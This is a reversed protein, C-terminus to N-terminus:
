KKQLGGGVSSSFSTGVDVRALARHDQMLRKLTRFLLSGIIITSLNFLGGRRVLQLQDTGQSPSFGESRPSSRRDLLAKAGSLTPVRKLADATGRGSM